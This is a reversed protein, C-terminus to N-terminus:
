FRWNNGCNRSSPKRKRPPSALSYFCMPLFALFAIAWGDSGPGNLATLSIIAVIAILSLVASFLLALYPMLVRKRAANFM